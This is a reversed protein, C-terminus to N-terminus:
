SYGISVAIYLFGICVAMVTLHIPLSWKLWTTYRIGAFGLGIILFPNTPWLMNSFGDGMQYALIVTQRSVGILDGLPALIPITLAAQGSGSPVFFNIAMQSFFLIVAGGHQGFGELLNAITFLITDMVLGVEVMYSVSFAFMVVPIAASFDGLGKGFYRFVNGMGAGSLLGAGFGMIIFILLMIIMILDGIIKIQTGVAVAAAIMGFCALILIIIGKANKVQNIELMSSSVAEKRGGERYTLSATPDKEVKRAYRLIYLISLSIITVFLLVRLGLGSFLQVDALTQAVGVTFPNFTAAAFGFGVMLLVIAFGTIEDWGMRIAFPVFIILVPLFEEMMGFTSSLFACTFACTILLLTKREGFSHELRALIENVVGTKILVSFAGGLILIFAVVVIIKPGNKGTVALLPALPIKWVPVPAPDVLQYVKVVADGKTVTMYKGAPIFHTSAGALIVLIGLIFLTSIVSRMPIKIEIKNEVPETVM